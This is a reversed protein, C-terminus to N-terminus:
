KKKIKDYEAKMQKRSDEIARRELFLILEYTWDIQAQEEIFFFDLIFDLNTFDKGIYGVDSGIRDGMTHFVNLATITSMPFDEQDPPCRDWDIEEGTQEVMRLYQDKTM